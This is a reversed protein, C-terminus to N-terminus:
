RPRRALVEEATPSECCIEDRLGADLPAVEDQLDAAAGSDQRLREGLGPRLDDRDLAVRQERRLQPRAEPLVPADLDDPAVGGAALPRRSRERHERVQREGAGSRDERVQEAIGARRKPARVQDHLPLEGGLVRGDPGRRKARGVPTGPVVERDAPAEGARRESRRGADVAGDEAELAAGTRADRDLRM